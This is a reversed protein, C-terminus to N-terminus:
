AEQWDNMNLEKIYVVIAKKMYKDAMEELYAELKAEALENTRIEEPTYGGWKENSITVCPRYNFQKTLEDDYRDYYAEKFSDRDDYYREGVLGVETIEVSSFSAMWYMGSGDCLDGDILAVIPLDPNAAVIKVLDKNVHM